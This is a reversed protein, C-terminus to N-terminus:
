LRRRAWTTALWALTLALVGGGIMAPTYSEVRDSLQGALPGALFAGAMYVVQTATFTTAGVSPPCRSMALAFVGVAVGGGAANELANLIAIGTVTITGTQYLGIGVLALGQLMAFVGVAAWWGRRRAVVGAVVAGLVTSIGGVLGDITGITARSFGRDVLMPKIMAGGFTEGFKAFVLFAWFGWGQTRLADRFERLVSARRRDHGPASGSAERTGLVLVWVGLIMLAMLLFDGRWGVIASLALLVGGGMINGLKFGAVQASNGPGLEDPELLDVAWGDVAIDQTAAFVNLVLFIAAILWLDHEPSLGALVLCCALMGAQAPVLWSKRRGWRSSGYRDVAPAWLLKLVWPASLYSAFGITTLSAGQERLLIPLAVALFGGPLGQAFYLASLFALKRAVVARIIRRQRRPETSARESRM